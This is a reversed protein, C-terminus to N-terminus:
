SSLSDSQQACLLVVKSNVNKMVFISWLSLQLTIVMSVVTSKITFWLDGADGHRVQWLRSAHGRSCGPRATRMTGTMTGATTSAMTTSSSSRWTNSNPRSRRWPSGSAVGGEGGGIGGVGKVQQGKAAPRSGWVGDCECWWTWLCTWIRCLVFSLSVTLPCFYSDFNFFNWLLSLSIHNLNDSRWMKTNPCIVLLSTCFIIFWTMGFQYQTGVREIFNNGM